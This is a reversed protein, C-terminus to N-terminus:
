ATAGLESRFLCILDWEFSNMLEGFPGFLVIRRNDLPGTLEIRLM